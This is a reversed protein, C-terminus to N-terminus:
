IGFVLSVIMQANRIRLTYYSDYKINLLISNSAIVHVNIYYM